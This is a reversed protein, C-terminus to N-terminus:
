RGVVRRIGDMVYHVENWELDTPNAFWNRAVARLDEITDINPWDQGPARPPPVPPKESMDPM